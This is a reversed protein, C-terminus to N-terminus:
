LLKRNHPMGRDVRFVRDVGVQTADGPSLLLSGVMTENVEASSRRPISEVDIPRGGGGGAGHGGASGEAAHHSGAGDLAGRPQLEMKRLTMPLAASAPHYDSPFTGAPAQWPKRQNLSRLLQTRAESGPGLAAAETNGQITYSNPVASSPFRPPADFSASWAIDRLQSELARDDM